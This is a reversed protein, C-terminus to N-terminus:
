RLRIQDLDLDLRIQELSAIQSDLQRAIQSDLQRAVQSGLQRAVQSGLQRAIQSDLQELQELQRAIQSDLQRAIQSDLSGAIQSDIKREKKRIEIYIYKITEFALQPRQIKDDDLRTPQHGMRTMMETDIIGIIQTLIDINDMM